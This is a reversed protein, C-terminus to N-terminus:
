GLSGNYSLLFGPFAVFLVGLVLAVMPTSWLVAWQARLDGSDLRREGALLRM